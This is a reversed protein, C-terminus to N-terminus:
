SSFGAAPTFSDRMSASFSSRESARAARVSRMSAGMGPFLTTPISTGLMATPRTDSRSTTSVVVKLCDGEFSVTASPRSTAPEGIM